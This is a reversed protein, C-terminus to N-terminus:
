KLLGMQLAAKLLGVTNKANLKQLLSFRHNEVTRQSLCLQEAIENSTHEAAILLLIEKERRTLASSLDKRPKLHLVHALLRDKLGEEVYEDGQYVKEIADLLIEKNATKLIYGKCGVHMMDKIHFVSDMSTLVIIKIGPYNKIITRALENGTIDPLQIDLLLIDPQSVALGNLLDAGTTYTHQVEIHKHYYLMNKIGSIVMPHDDTIDIKIYM